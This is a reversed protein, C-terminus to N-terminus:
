SLQLPSPYTEFRRTHFLCTSTSQKRRGARSCRCPNLSIISNLYGVCMGQDTSQIRSFDLHLSHVPSNSPLFFHSGDTLEEERPRPIFEFPCNPDLSVMYEAMRTLDSSSMERPPKLQVPFQFKEIDYYMSPHTNLQAWPINLDHWTRDPSQTLSHLLFLCLSTKRWLSTFLSELLAMLDAPTLSNIFTGSLM